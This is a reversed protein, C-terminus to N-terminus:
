RFALLAEMAAAIRLDGRVYGYDRCALDCAEEMANEFFGFIVFSPFREVVIEKSHIVQLLWVVFVRIAVRYHKSWCEDEEDPVQCVSRCFILVSFGGLVLWIAVNRRVEGDDCSVVTFLYGGQHSNLKVVLM